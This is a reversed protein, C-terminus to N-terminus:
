SFQLKKRLALTPALMKKTEPAPLFFLGPIYFTWSPLVPDPFPLLFAIRKNKQCPHKEEAATGLNYPLFADSHTGADDNDWMLPRM